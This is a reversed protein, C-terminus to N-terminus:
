ATHWIPSDENEWFNGFSIQTLLNYQFDLQLSNNTFTYVEFSQYDDIELEDELKSSLYPILEDKNRNIVLKDFIRTKPHYCEIQHLRNEESEFCLELRLSFYQFCYDFSSQYEKDPIGLRTIVEQQFMGFNIDDLGYGLIIDM